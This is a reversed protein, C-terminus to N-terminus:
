FESFLGAQHFLRIKGTNFIEKLKKRDEESLRALGLYLHETHSVRAKKTCGCGRNIGEYAQCFLHVPPCCDQRRAVKLSKYFDVMDMFDRTMGEIPPPPTNGESSVGSMSVKIDQEEESM